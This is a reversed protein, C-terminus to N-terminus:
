QATATTNSSSTGSAANAEASKLINILSDMDSNIKELDSTRTNQISIISNLHDEASKYNKAKIDNKIDQSIPSITVNLNKLSSIDDKLTKAQVEIKSLDESTLQKHNVKINKTIAKIETRKQTIEKRLALNKAHNQKISDKIPKMAKLAEQREQRQQKNEIRKQGSVLSSLAGSNNEEAKVTTAGLTTLILSTAILSSIVKIKISTM